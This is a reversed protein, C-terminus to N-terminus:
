TLLEGIDSGVAFIWVKLLGDSFLSSEETLPERVIRASTILFVISREKLCNQLFSNLDKKSKGRWLLRQLSFGSVMKTSASLNTFCFNEPFIGSESATINTANTSVLFFCQWTFSANGTTLSRTSSALLLNLTSFIFLRNFWGSTHRSISLKRWHGTYWIDLFLLSGFTSLAYEVSISWKRMRQLLAHLPNCILTWKSGV